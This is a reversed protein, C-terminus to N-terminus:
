SKEYEFKGTNDNDTTDHRRVPATKMVHYFESEKATWTKESIYVEGLEVM